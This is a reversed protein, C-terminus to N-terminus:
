KDVKRVSMQRGLKTEASYAVWFRGQRDYVGGAFRPNGASEITRPPTWQNKDQDLDIKRLAWREGDRTESWLLTLGGGPKPIFVPTCVNKMEGDPAQLRDPELDRGVSPNALCVQKMRNGSQSDWASWVQGSGSVGLAPTLDINRGSVSSIGGLRLSQDVTRVFVTPEGAFVSYGPNPQHFDWIWAVVVGNGCPAMAPDFHKEHWPVDTPSIEVEKSWIGNEFRRLCVRKGRSGQRPVDYWKYYTLWLGGNSDCAMRGHMAETVSLSGAFNTAAQWPDALAAVRVEHRNGGTCATRCIWIRNQPDAL